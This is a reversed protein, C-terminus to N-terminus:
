RKMIVECIKYDGTVIQDEWFSGLRLRADMMRAIYINALALIKNPVDKVNENLNKTPNAMEISVARGLSDVAKDALDNMIKVRDPATEGDFAKAFATYL